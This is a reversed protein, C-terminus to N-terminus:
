RATLDPKRPEKENEDHMMGQAQVTSDNKFKKKCFFRTLDFLLKCFELLTLISIGTFLGLSGGISSLLDEPKYRQEQAIIEVTMSKYYIDVRALNRRAEAHNNTVNSAKNGLMHRLLVLYAETPWIASSTTAPYEYQRCDENCNCTLNSLRLRDNVVKICRGQTLNLPDCNPKVQYAIEVCGCERLQHQATCAKRCAMQSYRDSHYPLDDPTNAPWGCYKGEYPFDLRTVVRQSFGINTIQGPAVLYGNEEPFYKVKSSTIDIVAGYSESFDGLYEDAEINLILSLGNENGPVSVNQTMNEGAFVYCNGYVFNYLLTFNEPGCVEGKWICQLIFDDVQHGVSQKVSDDLSAIFAYKYSSM